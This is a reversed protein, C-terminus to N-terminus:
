LREWRRVAHREQFLTKAPFQTTRIKTTTPRSCRSLFTFRDTTTTAMGIQGPPNITPDIGAQCIPIQQENPDSEAKKKDFDLDSKAQDVCDFSQTYTFNLLSGAGFGETQNKRLPDNVQGYVLTTASILAFCIAAGRMLIKM